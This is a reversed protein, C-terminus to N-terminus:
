DKRKRKTWVKGLIGPGFLVLFIGCIAGILQLINNKILEKLNYTDILGQTIPILLWVFTSIIIFAIFVKQYTSRRKNTDGKKNIYYQTIKQPFDLLNDVLQTLSSAGIYMTTIIYAGVTNGTKEENKVINCLMIPKKTNNGAFILPEWNKSYKEFWGHYLRRKKSSDTAGGISCIECSSPFWSKQFLGVSPLEIKEDNFGILIPHKKLLKKNILAHEGRAKREETTKIKKPFINYSNQVLKWAATQAELIIIGGNKVWINLDPRYHDFFQFARDSGYISDNNISDWNLIIIDTLRRDFLELLLFPNSEEGNLNDAISIFKFDHVGKYKDKLSEWFCTRRKENDIKDYIVKINAMSVQNDESRIPKRYHIKETRRIKLM